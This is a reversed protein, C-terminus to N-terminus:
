RMLGCIRCFETKGESELGSFPIFDHMPNAPCEEDIGVSHPADALGIAEGLSKAYVIKVSGDAEVIKYRPM